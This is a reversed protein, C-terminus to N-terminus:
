PRPTSCWYDLVTFRYRDRDKRSEIHAQAAELTPFLRAKALGCFRHPGVFWGEKESLAHGIGAPRYGKVEIVFYTKGEVM